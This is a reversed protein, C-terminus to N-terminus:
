PANPSIIKRFLVRLVKWVKFDQQDSRLEEEEDDYWDEIVDILAFHHELHIQSPASIVDLATLVQDETADQDGTETQVTQDQRIQNMADMSTMSLYGVVLGLVLFGNRLQAM